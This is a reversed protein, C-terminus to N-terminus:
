RDCATFDISRVVVDNVYIEMRYNGAIDEADFWMPMTTIGQTRRTPLHFGPKGNASTIQQIIEGTEISIEAIKPPFFLCYYNYPENDPPLITIGWYFGDDRTLLPISTADEFVMSIGNRNEIAGFIIQYKDQTSDEPKTQKWVGEQKEFLFHKTKQTGIFFEKDAPPSNASINVTKLGSDNAQQKFLQWIENIESQM